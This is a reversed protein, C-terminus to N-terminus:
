KALLPYAGGMAVVFRDLALELRGRLAVAAHDDFRLRCYSCM